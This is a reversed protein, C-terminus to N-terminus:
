SYSARAFIAPRLPTENIRIRNLEKNIGDIVDRWFKRYPFQDRKKLMSIAEIRENVLDDFSENEAIDDKNTAMVYLPYRKTYCKM